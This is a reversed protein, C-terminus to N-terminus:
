VVSKRDGELLEVIRETAAVKGDTYQKVSDKREQKSRREKDWEMTDREKRM